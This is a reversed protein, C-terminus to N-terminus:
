ANETYERNHCSFDTTHPNSVNLHKTYRLNLLFNQQKPTKKRHFNSTTVVVFSKEYAFQPFKTSCFSQLFDTITKSCILYRDKKKQFFM